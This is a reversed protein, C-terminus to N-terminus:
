IEKNKNLEWVKYNKNELYVSFLRELVFTHMTYYNMGIQTKLEDESLAGKYLSDQFALDKYKTELLFIAKSVYNNFYDRYISNRAIFFNSYIIHKPEKCYLGLESCIDYFLSFFGPHQQETFELYKENFRETCFNYVDYNPYKELYYELKKKFVGTKNPFRWSFIGIYQSELKINTLIDRIPNYEFLYSQQHKERPSNFYRDYEVVQDEKYAISYITIKNKMM